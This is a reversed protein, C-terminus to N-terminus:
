SLQYHKATVSEIASLNWICGSAVDWTYYWSMVDDLRISWQYPAIVIGDFDDAVRNWDIYESAYSRGYLSEQKLQYKNHFERIAPVTELFLVNANDALKVESVFKLRDLAYHEATAWSPWDDEGKVSIWFGNPKYPNMNDSYTKFRDFELLEQTYHEFIM